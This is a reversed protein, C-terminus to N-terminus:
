AVFNKHFRAFMTATECRQANDLPALIAGNASTKGTIIGVGNAWSVADAFGAYPSIKSADPFASIDAGEAMEEGKYDKMFRYLFVAVQERTVLADPSFATASSGATVGNEYAWIVADAYWADENVDTFIPKYTVEPRGEMNYLLQVIMARSTAVSPSFATASTGNMLNNKFSYVVSPTFWDTNKVDTFSFKKVPATTKEYTAKVTEADMAGQYIRVCNVMSGRQLPAAGAGSPAKGGVLFFKDEEAIDKDYIASLGGPLRRYESLRGNVYLRLMMSDYTVTIHTWRDNGFPLECYYEPSDEGTGILVYTKSGNVGISLGATNYMGVIEQREAGNHIKVYTEITFEHRIDELDDEDFGYRNAGFGRFGAACRGIDEDETIEIFSEAKSYHGMLDAGSGYSYDIDYLLKPNKTLERRGVNVTDSRSVTESELRFGTEASVKFRYDTDWDLGNIIATVTDDASTSLMMPNTISEYVETGKGDVPVATIRYRSVFDHNNGTKSLAAPFTVEVSYNNGLDKATIYADPPFAPATAKLIYSDPNKADDEDSFYIFDDATDSSDLVWSENPFMIRGNQFDIRYFRTSGDAMVDFMIGTSGISEDELFSKGVTGDNMTTYGCSQDIFTPNFINSHSHGWVNIIQPYNKLLKKTAGSVSSSDGCEVHSILFIHGNWGSRDIEEMAEKIFAEKKHYTLDAETGTMALKIIPVKGALWYLKDTEQGTKERFRKYIKEYDADDGIDYFEHNGVALITTDVPADAGKGEMVFGDVDVTLTNTNESVISMLEDYERKTGSDTLDGALIFADAGGLRGIVDYANRFKPSAYKAGIHVDSGVVFRAIVDSGRKMEKIETFESSHIPYTDGYVCVTLSFLM